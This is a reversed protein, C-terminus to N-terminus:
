HKLRPDRIARFQSVAFGRFSGYGRYAAPKNIINVLGIKRTWFGNLWACITGIRLKGFSLLKKGKLFHTNVIEIVICPEVTRGPWYRFGLGLLYARWSDSVRIEAWRWNFAQQHSIIPIKYRVINDGM